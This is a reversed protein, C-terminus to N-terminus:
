VKVCVCGLLRGHYGSNKVVSLCGRGGGGGGGGGGEGEVWGGVCVVVGQCVVQRVDVEPIHLMWHHFLSLVDKPILTHSM